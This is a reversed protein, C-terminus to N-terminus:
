PPPALFLQGPRLTQLPQISDLVKGDGLDGGKIAAGVRGDLVGQAMRPYLHPGVSGGLRALLAIGRRHLHGVSFLVLM